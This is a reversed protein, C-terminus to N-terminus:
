SSPLRWILVGEQVFLQTPAFDTFTYIRAAEKTAFELLQRRAAPVNGSIQCNGKDSNDLYIIGGPRVLSIAEAVCLDRYRGDVMILDFGESAEVPNIQVYRDPGQAFHYQVNGVSEARLLDAVQGHWQKDDEISTVEGALHSYWLTSLGSGYELVRMDKSLFKGILAQADYSIWPRRARYGFGLMCASALARPANRILRRCPVLHGLEDHLRTKRTESGAILKKYM